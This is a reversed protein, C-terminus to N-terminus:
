HEDDDFLKRFISKIREMLSGEWDEGIFDEDFNGHKAVGSHCAGCNAKSKVKPDSWAAARIEDHKRLFRPATTIREPAQGTSLEKRWKGAARSTSIDSANALHYALVAQRTAADLSADEGFHNPLNGLIREWSKGPLMQPFYVMHCEGCAAIIKPNDIPPFSEARAPAALMLFLGTILMLKRM